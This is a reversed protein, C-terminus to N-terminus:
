KPLVQKDTCRIEKHGCYICTKTIEVYLENWKESVLRTTEKWYHRCM